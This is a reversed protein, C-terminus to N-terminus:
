HVAGEISKRFTYKECFVKWSALGVFTSDQGLAEEVRDALAAIPAMIISEGAVLPSPDPLEERVIPLRYAAATVWRIPTLLPLGELRQVDLMLKSTTFIRIRETGGPSPSVSIGRRELESIVRERRATRQGIHAVDYTPGDGTATERLGQHGGFCVWKARPDMKLVEPDSVWVQDVLELTQDLSAKWWAVADIQESVRRDVPELHWFATRAKRSPKSRDHVSVMFDVDMEVWIYFADADFDIQSRDIISFGSLEVLHWFDSYSTYRRSSRVFVPAANM